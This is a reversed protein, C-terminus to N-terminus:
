PTTKRPGGKGAPRATQPEQWVVLPAPYIDLRLRLRVRPLLSSAPLPRERSPSSHALSDHCTSKTPSPQTTTSVQRLHHHHSGAFYRPICLQSNLTLAPQGLLRAQPLHHNIQLILIALPSYCLTGM